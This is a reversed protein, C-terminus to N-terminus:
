LVPWDPKMETAPAPMAAYIQRRDISAPLPGVTALKLNVVERAFILCAELSLGDLLATLFGAWFSDGAGTVDVVKVPRTPLYGLLQGRHSILSGDKGLTLVVTEPGLQHFMDVYERPTKGPGLFRHADDLSAKTITTYRYLATMVEVAEKYNPWIVPSYNPDFSVIKGQEAGLRFAKEVASRCPPRSLAFTSAHIVRARAIAEESVEAPTLKYDGDRFPEFEPTGTTRSVFIISTHVNHDMVLYSTDVGQRRLSNNLFRGFAGIGMKSIVATTAGLKAANVAINAPSGGQLRQFTTAEALGSVTETSLFDILTEGIALIDIDPTTM